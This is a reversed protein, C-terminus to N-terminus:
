IVETVTLSLNVHDRYDFTAQADTFGFILWGDYNEVLNWASPIRGNEEIYSDFKNYESLSMRASVPLVKPLTTKKYYRYGLPNYSEISNDKRSRQAGYRISMNGYNEAIGGYCIGAFLTEDGPSTLNVSVLCPV